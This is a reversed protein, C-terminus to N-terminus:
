IIFDDYIFEGYDSLVIIDGRDIDEVNVYYYDNLLKWKYNKILEFEDTKFYFYKDNCISIKLNVEDHYFDYKKNKNLEIYMGIKENLYINVNYFGNLEIGYIKKYTLLIEKIHKGIDEKSKYDLKKIYGSNIFFLYNDDGDYEVKM